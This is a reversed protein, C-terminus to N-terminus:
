RHRSSSVVHQPHSLVPLKQGSEVHGVFPLVLRCGKGCKLIEVFLGIPEDKRTDMNIDGNVLCVSDLGSRTTISRCTRSKGTEASTDDVKSLLDRYAVSNFAHIISIPFDPTSPFIFCPIHSTINILGANLALHSSITMIRINKDM